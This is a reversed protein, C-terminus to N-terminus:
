AGDYDGTDLNAATFEIESLVPRVYQVSTNSKPLILALSIPTLEADLPRRNHSGRAPASVKDIAYIVMLPPESSSRYKIGKPAPRGDLDLVEDNPDRISGIEAETHEKRSRKVTRVTGISGGYDFESPGSQTSKFLVNWHSLRPAVSDLYKFLSPKDIRSEESHFQFEELFEQVRELPVGVALRSGSKETATLGEALRVAIRQNSALVDPTLDLWAVDIACDSYSVEAQVSRMAAARCINLYPSVRIRPGYESPAIGNDQMWLLERRLDQEVRVLEGFWGFLEETTWIRLLHRYGPRFGFWRGMQMLSDYTRATRAFYSCVLGELTLGRSLTNGGIAIVTVSPQGAALDSYTLRNIYEVESNDVIVGSHAQQLRGDERFPEGAPKRNILRDLVHVVHECVEEWTATKESLVGAGGGDRSPVQELTTEYFLRMGTLDELFEYRLQRLYDEIAPRYEKQQQISQTTHILMSSHFQDLPVGLGVRASTALVFWRIADRLAGTLVEVSSDEFDFQIPSGVQEEGFLQDIGVYSDPPDLPYIFDKPYLGYTTQSTLINAYPTATYALYACRREDNSTRLNVIRSLQKHVGEMQEGRAVDLGAQDAEDDIVLVALKRLSDDSELELWDALRELITAHKKVVLLGRKADGALHSSLSNGDPRFDNLATGLWWFAQNHVLTRSARNQTQRRLSNHVGSLIIVLDYRHDLAKAAVSLFSTTKGSQVHGLVLGRTNISTGLPNALRALIEDAVKSTKEVAEADLGLMKKAYSWRPSHHDPLPLYWSDLEPSVLGRDAHLLSGIRLYYEDIIVEAVEPHRSRLWEEAHEFGYRQVRADLNFLQEELEDADVDALKVIKGAATQIGDLGKSFCHTNHSHLPHTRLAKVSRM